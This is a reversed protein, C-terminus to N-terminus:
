EGKLHDILRIYSEIYENVPLDTTTLNFEIKKELLKILKIISGKRKIKNQYIYENRIQIEQYTRKLHENERELEAIISEKQFLKHELDIIKRESADLVSQNKILDSIKKIKDNM